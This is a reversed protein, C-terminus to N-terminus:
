FAARQTKILNIQALLQDLSVDALSPIQLDAERIALHSILPNPVAVCFIGARKAAKVGLPSDELAFAEDASVQLARLANLYLEPDPKIHQVYDSTCLQDFYGLLGLRKLNRTVWDNPSNSAIGVKLGLRRADKVYQVAGPLPPQADILDQEIKARRAEVSEWDLPVPMLKELELRPDFDGQTTGVNPLWTSFPLEHSFSQYIQAWSQYTPEETELILGDFDFIIASIM